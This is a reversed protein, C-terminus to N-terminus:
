LSSLPNRPNWTDYFACAYINPPNILNGWWENMMRPPNNWSNGDEM